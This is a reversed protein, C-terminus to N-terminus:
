WPKLWYQVGPVSMSEDPLTISSKSVAFNM